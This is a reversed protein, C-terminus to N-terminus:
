HSNANVRTPRIRYIVRVEGPELARFDKGKYLHSLANIHEAGGAETSDVVEGRVELWRYPDNPDIALVTVKPREALNRDKQRGRVTNVRIFGEALDCWVPTAQPQGDPMLTVLTVVVPGELLDLHSAPIVTM